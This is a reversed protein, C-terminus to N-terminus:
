DDQAFEDRKKILLWEAKLRNLMENKDKHYPDGFIIQFGDNSLRDLSEKFLNHEESWKFQYLYLNKSGKDLYFADVGYANNGFAVNHRIEKIECKFKNM